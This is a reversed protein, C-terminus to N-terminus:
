TILDEIESTQASGRHSGRGDEVEGPWVCTRVYLEGRPRPRVQTALARRMQAHCADPRLTRVSRADVHIQHAACLQARVSACAICASESIAARQVRVCAPTRKEAPQVRMSAAQLGRHAAFCSAKYGGALTPSSASSHRACAALYPARCHTARTTLRATARADHVDKRPDIYHASVPDTIPRSPDLVARVAM